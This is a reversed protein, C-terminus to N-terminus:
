WGWLAVNGSCMAPAVDTALCVLREWPLGNKICNEVAQILDHGTASGKLPLLDLFEVIVNLQCDVGRIFVACQATGSSGTSEDLAISFAKFDKATALLQKELNAALDTIRNAVTNPSM